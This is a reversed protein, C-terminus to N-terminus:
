LLQAAFADAEPKSWHLSVPLEEMQLRAGDVLEAVVIVSRNYPQLLGFIHQHELALPGLQEQRAVHLYASLLTQITTRSNQYTGWARGTWKIIDAPTITWNRGMFQDTVTNNPRHPELQLAQCIWLLILHRRYLHFTAPMERFPLSNLARLECDLLPFRRAFYQRFEISVNTQVMGQGMQASTGLRAREVATSLTSLSVNVRHAITSSTSISASPTPNSMAASSSGSGVAFVLVHDFLAESM